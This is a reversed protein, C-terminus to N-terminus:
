VRVREGHVGDHSTNLYIINTKCHMWKNEYIFCILFTCYLLQMQQHEELPVSVDEVDSNWM